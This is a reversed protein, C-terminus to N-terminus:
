EGDEGTGSNEEQSSQNQHQNAQNQSLESSPIVSEPQPSRDPLQTNTSAESSTQVTGETDQLKTCQKLIWSTQTSLSDWKDDLERLVSEEAHIVFWWSSKRTQANPRAGSGSGRYM